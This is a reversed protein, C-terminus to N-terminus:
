KLQNEEFEIMDAILHRWLKEATEPSFGKAEAERRVRGVVEAGRSPIAAPLGKAKKFEAVNKVLEFRKAFLAVLEDDVGDIARRLEALTDSKQATM